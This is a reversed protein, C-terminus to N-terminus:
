YKKRKFLDISVNEYNRTLFELSFRLIEGMNSSKKFNVDHTYNFITTKLLQINDETSIEDNEMSDLLMEVRVHSSKLRKVLISREETKYQDISLKQIINSVLQVMEYNEKFFQPRYINLKGEYSQQDFDIARIKYVVKDFDHTPVIVYNYSRMDGLLRIMCRENFKVFEKAIQAKESKTCNPLMNKIFEDGPIGAIHEEILTNEYVLFNLNYPSLMHELELGYVRSADATKIYFYTSNDNLVNRIKIRFPKSNGFTCYDIADVSLFPLINENGDSHFITYVKKLSSDIEEREFENYYVRIWLTDNDDKDYVVISGQFRLLDDYFIPIEVNRNYRSLYQHLKETIPYSPKRKSIKLDQM